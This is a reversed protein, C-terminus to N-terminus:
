KATKNSFETDKFYTENLLNNTFSFFNGSITIKSQKYMKPMLQLQFVKGVNFHLCNLIQYYLPRNFQAAVNLSKLVM